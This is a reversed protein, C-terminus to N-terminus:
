GHDFDCGAAKPREHRPLAPRDGSSRAGTDCRRDIEDDIRTPYRGCQALERDYAETCDYDCDSPEDEATPCDEVGDCIWSQLLPEGTECASVECGAEDEEEPCEGIGNCRWNDPLQSGDDCVFMRDRDCETDRLCTAYAFTVAVQCDLIQRSLDDGSIVDDVCDVDLGGLFPVPEEKCMRVEDEDDLCECNAAAVKVFAAHLEQAATLEGPDRCALAAATAVGAAIRLGRM